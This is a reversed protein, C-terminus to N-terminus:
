VVTCYTTKRVNFHKRFHTLIDRMNIVNRKYLFVKQQSICAFRSGLSFPDITMMHGGNKRFSIISLNYTISSSITRPLFIRMYVQSLFIVDRGEEWRSFMGRVLETSRRKVSAFSPVCYHQCSHQLIPEDKGIWCRYIASFTRRNTSPMQAVALSSRNRLGNSRQSVM